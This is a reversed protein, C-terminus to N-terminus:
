PHHAAVAQVIGKLTHENATACLDGLSLMGVLHGKNDAVPLRRVKKLRMVEVAKDLDDDASCTFTQKTMLSKAATKALDAGAAVGRVAIDRDTIIGLIAGNSKVPLAGIDLAKMQKACELITADPSISTAGKHMVDKVKM